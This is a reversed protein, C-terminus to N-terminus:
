FTVVKKTKSPLAAKGFAKVTGTHLGAKVDLQKWQKDEKKEDRSVEATRRKFTHFDDEDAGAGSGTGFLTAAATGSQDHKRLECNKALHTKEGCLKCCGGDPYIGKEKNQPCSSALHGKGSCVFCSAFPLPNHPDEPQKCRSLSHKTSGCRYCMGLVKRVTKKGNEGGDEVGTSAKPCDRAAHGKERCAFCVTEAQRDSIRNLRRQETRKAYGSAAVSKSKRNNWDKQIKKSKKPGSSPGEGMDEGDAEGAPKSDSTQQGDGSVDKSKKTRKRKKKPPASDGQASSVALDAAKPETADHSASPLDGAFSAEVYTRKRGFNTIRTM